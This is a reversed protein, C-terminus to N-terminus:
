SWTAKGVSEGDRRFTVVGEWYVARTSSRSDLEQDDMLPMIQWETEGTRIRTAVPYVAQTHSSRWTRIPTFSVQDPTFSRTQGSPDRLTAYAWVKSNDKGRIQFAM